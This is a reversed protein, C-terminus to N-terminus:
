KKLYKALPSKFQYYLCLSNRRPFDLKIKKQSFFYAFFTHTRKQNIGERRSITHLCYKVLNNYQLLHQYNFLIM